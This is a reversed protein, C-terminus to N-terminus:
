KHTSLASLVLPVSSEAWGVEKYVVSCNLEIAEVVESEVSFVLETDLLWLCERASLSLLDRM